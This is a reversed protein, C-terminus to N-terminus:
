EISGELAESLALEAKGYRLIQENLYRKLAYIRELRRYHGHERCYIAAEVALPEGNRIDGSRILIEARAVKLLIESSKTPPRVKGALDVYDLGQQTKGLSGYSKAYEEYVMALNYQKGTSDTEQSAMHALEEAERIAHEFDRAREARLYARALFQMANGRAATDAQPTTDLAGELYILAHSINGKRRLMDGQYALSVNLLTHDNLLRAFYEMQQYYYIAPGVEDTRASLATAHGAAHYARTLARVFAVDHIRVQHSAGQVLNEIIARAEAIHAEDILSWVHDVTTNIKEVTLPIYISAAVGLHEHPIGLRDAIRKLERVDTLVTEGNEWRRLTRPEVELNAALEEQTLNHIDRYIKLVQGLATPPRQKAEKGPM